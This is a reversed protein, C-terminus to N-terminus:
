KRNIDRHTVMVQHGTKTIHEYVEQAIVVSRHHGGTCGIAITLYAKGEKKYLPILYDLLDLYRVLFMNAQNDNLVFARVEKTTGVLHCLEPVFYPNKLFRVDMIHDADHPIGHMFGFSMIHVRMPIEVNHDKAIKQIVAKLDHVTYKTTDIVRGAEKELDRLQKKDARICAVLDNNGDYLPHHRRTQSYRQVLTETDASLFLLTFTYGQKQIGRIIKQYSNLFDKERLDMVFAYGKAAFGRDVILEVFKPLLAVPMNDVCYFGNDELAALATSKGSGAHGTIIIFQLSTPPSAPL